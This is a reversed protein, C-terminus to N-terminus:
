STFSNCFIIPQHLNFFIKTIEKGVIKTIESGKISSNKKLYDEMSDLSYKKIRNILAKRLLEKSEKNLFNNEIREDVEILVISERQEYSLITNYDSKMISSIVEKKRHALDELTGIMDSHDADKIMKIAVSM